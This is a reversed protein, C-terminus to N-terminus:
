LTMTRHTIALSALYRSCMNCPTASTLSRRKFIKSIRVKDQIGFNKLVTSFAIGLNVGTHSKAVEVLDLLMTFLKGECKLHVMM